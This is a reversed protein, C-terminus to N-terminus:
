EIQELHFDNDIREILVFHIIILFYKSGKLLPEVFTILIIESYILSVLKLQSLQDDLM